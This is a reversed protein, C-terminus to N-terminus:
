EPLKAVKGIQELRKQQLEMREAKMVRAKEFDAMKRQMVAQEKALVAAEKELRRERAAPGEKDTGANSSKKTSTKVPAAASNPDTKALDANSEVTYKPLSLDASFFSDEPIYAGAAMLITTQDKPLSLCASLLFNMLCELNLYVYYFICREKPWDMVSPRWKM